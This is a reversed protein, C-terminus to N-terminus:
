FIITGLNTKYDGIKLLELALLVLGTPAICTIGLFLGAIIGLISEVLFQNM